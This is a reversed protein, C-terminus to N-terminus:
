VLECICVNLSMCVYAFMCACEYAILGKNVIIFLFIKVIFLQEFLCLHM